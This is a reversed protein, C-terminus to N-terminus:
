GTQPRLRPTPRVAAPAGGPGGPTSGRGLKFIDTTRSFSGVAGAAPRGQSLRENLPTTGSVWNSLRTTAALQSRASQMTHQVPPRTGQTPQSAHVSRASRMPLIPPPGGGGGGLGIRPTQGQQQQGGVAPPATMPKPPLSASLSQAVSANWHLPKVFPAAHPMPNVRTNDVTLGM